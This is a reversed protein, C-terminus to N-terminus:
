RRFGLDLRLPGIEQDGNDLHGDRKRAYADFNTLRVGKPMAQLGM